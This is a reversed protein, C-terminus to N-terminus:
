LSKDTVYYTLKVTLIALITVRYFNISMLFFDCSTSADSYRIRCFAEHIKNPCWKTDSSEKSISDANALKETRARIVEKDLRILKEPSAASM